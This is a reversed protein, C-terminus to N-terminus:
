NPQPAANRRDHFAALELLRLLRPAGNVQLQAIAENAVNRLQDDPTLKLAAVVAELLHWLESAGTIEKPLPAPQPSASLEVSRIYESLTKVAGADGAANAKQLAEYFETLDINAM